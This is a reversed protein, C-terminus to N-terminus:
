PVSGEVRASLLAEVEKARPSTSAGRATTALAGAACAFALASDIPAGAALRAALAGAFADGAGTTDVPKVAPAETRLQEGGHLALVGAGGLTVVVTDAGLSAAIAAADAAPDAPGSSGAIARAEGENVIVASAGRPLDAAPLAPSANLIGLAGHDRAWRLAPEAARPTELQCLLVAAGDIAALAAHVADPDLRDNAGGAVVIQNEGSADVWIAARGTPEGAIRICHDVGVGDRALDALLGAGGEDEGVAAVLDVAAGARAAAVAQNAGVGGQAESLAAGTVTEGAAPLRAMTFTSDLNASGVVVVQGPFPV